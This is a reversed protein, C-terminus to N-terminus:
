WRTSYNTIIGCHWMIVVFQKIKLNFGSVKFALTTYKDNILSLYVEFLSPFTLRGSDAVMQQRTNFFVINCKSVHNRLLLFGNIRYWLTWLQLGSINGHLHVIPDWKCRVSQNACCYVLSCFLFFFSFCVKSDLLLVKKLIMLISQKLDIVDFWVNFSSWCNLIATVISSGHSCFPLFVESYDFCSYMTSPLIILAPKWIIASSWLRDRITPPLDCVIAFLTTEMYDCVISFTRLTSQQM